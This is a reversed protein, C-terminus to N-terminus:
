VGGDTENLLPFRQTSPSIYPLSDLNILLTEGIVGFYIFFFAVM